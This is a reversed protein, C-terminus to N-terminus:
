NVIVAFRGYKPRFDLLGIRQGAIQAIEIFSDRDIISPDYEVNFTILWDDFRPRCRLVKARGVNVPRVDRYRYDKILDEPNKAGPYDLTINRPGVRVGEEIDKGKKLKRAAVVLTKEVCVAPVHIPISLDQFDHYLALRWDFDLIKINDEETKKRKSTLKKQEIVLPHTPNVGVNSHMLLPDLGRFTM